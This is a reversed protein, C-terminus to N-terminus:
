PRLHSYDIETIEHNNDAAWARAIDILPLDHQAGATYPLHHITEQTELDTLTIDFRDNADLTYTALLNM